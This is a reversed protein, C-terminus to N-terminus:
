EPSEGNWAADFQNMLSKCRSAVNNVLFAMQDDEHVTLRYTVSNTSKDGVRSSPGFTDDYANAMIDSMHMLERVVGELNRMASAVEEDTPRRKPMAEGAAQGSLNPM